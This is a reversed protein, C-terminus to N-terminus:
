ERPKPESIRRMVARWDSAKQIALEIRGRAIKKANFLPM